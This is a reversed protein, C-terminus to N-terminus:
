MEAKINVVQTPAAPDNSFIAVNKFQKGRRGKTDFTVKLKTSEGPKLTNKELVAVTCTCNALTSRINLESKGANTLTFVTEVTTNALIKGFNHERRNILLKPAKALEEDTMPPFYEEITAVVTLRKEPEKYDTTGIVVDDTYYGLTGRKVPDYTVRMIGKERPNLETPEFVFHIHAPAQVMGELFSVATDSDNYLGFERVIPKETTIKGLNLSKAVLRLSGYKLPLHDEITKVKPEVSGKISLVVVGGGNNSTVTLTKNFPGPRNLTNYRATIQGSAGPAVPERTWAPTTCGCSAKVMNILLPESGINRFVFTYEAAGDAEKIQGFDHVVKEFELKPQAVLVGAGLLSVVLILHRMM